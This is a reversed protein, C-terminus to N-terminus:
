VVEKPIDGGSQIWRMIWSSITVTDQRESFMAFVTFQTISCHLVGIYLFIHQSKEGDESIVNKALMGSADICMLAEELKIFVNHLRNQHSSWFYVYIPDLGIDRVVNHGEQSKKYKLLATLPNPDLHKKKKIEYKANRLVHAKQLIPPEKTDGEKMLDNAVRSRYSEVSEYKLHSAIVKRNDGRLQRKGCTGKSESATCKLKIIEEQELPPLIQCKLQSGCECHGSIIIRVKLNM